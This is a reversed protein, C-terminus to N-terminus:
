RQTALEAGPQRKRPDRKDPGAPHARDLRIASAISSASPLPEGAAAALWLACAVSGTVTGWTLTQLAIQRMNLAGLSPKGRQM